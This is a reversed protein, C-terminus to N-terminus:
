TVFICWSAAVHVKRFPAGQLHPDTIAESSLGCTFMAAVCDTGKVAKSHKSIHHNKLVQALQTETGPESIFICYSDVTRTAYDKWHRQFNDKEKTDAEAAPTTTSTGAAGAGPAETNGSVTTSPPPVKEQELAKDIDQMKEKFQQYELLEEPAKRNKVGNKLSPDYDNDFAVGEVVQLCLEASRPWGKKWDLSVPLPETPQGQADRCYPRLKTRYIEHSATVEKISAKVEAPFDQREMWSNVLYDRMQKKFLLLDLIGRKGSSIPALNRVSFTGADTLGM